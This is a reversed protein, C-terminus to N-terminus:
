DEFAAVHSVNGCLFADAVIQLPSCDVDCESNKVLKDFHRYMAPYEASLTASEANESTLLPAAADFVYCDEDTELSIKWSDNSTERWDFEVNIPLNSATELRLSSAIPTVKNSPIFHHAQAVRIRDDVIETLISLANIGPDMVGFGGAEWIWDQGPHWKRVDERWEIRIHKVSHSQYWKKLEAVTPSWRSHWSAFLTLKKSRAIDSLIEVEGVSIGPPKEMFVHKGALLAEKAAEFRAIPPQCLVVANIEPHAFLTESLSKYIPVNASKGHRSAVAILEANPTRAIAPVHEDKAIKGYGVIAYKLTM